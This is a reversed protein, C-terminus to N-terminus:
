WERQPGACALANIKNTKIKNYIRGLDNEYNGTSSSTQMLPERKPGALDNTTLIATLLNRDRKVFVM